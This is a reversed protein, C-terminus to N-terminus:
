AQVEQTAQALRAFEDITLTEGEPVNLHGTVHVTSGAEWVGSVDGSVSLTEGGQNGDEDGDGGPGPTVTTNDDDDSCSTLTVTGMGLMLASAVLLYKM